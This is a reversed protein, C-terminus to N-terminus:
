RAQAPRSSNERGLFANLDAIAQCVPERHLPAVAVDLSTTLQGVLRQVAQEATPAAIRLEPFDQHFVEFRDTGCTNCEIEAVIIKNADVNMM